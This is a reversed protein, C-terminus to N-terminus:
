AEAGKERMPAEVHRVVLVNSSAQRPWPTHYWWARVQPGVLRRTCRLFATPSGIEQRHVISAAEGTAACPAARTQLLRRVQAPRPTLATTPRTVLPFPM